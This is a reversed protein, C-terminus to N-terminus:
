GLEGLKKEAISLVTVVLRRLAEDALIAVVEEVPAFPVTGVAVFGCPVRNSSCQEPSVKTPVPRVLAATNPLVAASDASANTSSTPGAVSM